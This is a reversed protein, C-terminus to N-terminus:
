IKELIATLLVDHVIQQVGNVNECMLIDTATFYFIMENHYPLGYINITKNIFYDITYRNFYVLHGSSYNIDKTSTYDYFYIYGNEHFFYIYTNRNLVHVACLYTM